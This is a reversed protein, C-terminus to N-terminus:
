TRIARLRLYLIIIVLAGHGLPWLITLLNRGAWVLDQNGQALLAALLPGFTIGMYVLVGLAGGIAAILPLNRSRRRRVATRIVEALGAAMVPALFFGWFDLFGLLYTAIGVGVLGLVAAIGYDLGVATEFVQQQGRVCAPCRYGVPTQIACSTCIPQGCRNCRLTTERDPHNICTLIQESV